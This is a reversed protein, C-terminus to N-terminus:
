WTKQFKAKEEQEKKKIKVLDELAMNVIASDSLYPYDYIKRIEDLVERKVRVQRVNSPMFM